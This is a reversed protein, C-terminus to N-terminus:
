PRAKREYRIEELWREAGDQYWTWRSTFHADDLFTYTARDMHGSDRSPIGTADLFGFDVTRGGNSSETAVLRPQNRAVCYHTLMLRAGDMHYMTMMTEGPHADFSTEVVVSGGAITRFTIAETWGRTSTGVWEGELSKLREFLRAAEPAGLKAADDAGPTGSSPSQALALMMLFAIARSM